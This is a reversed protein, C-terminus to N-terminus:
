LVCKILCDILYSVASILSSVSYKNFIRLILKTSHVLSPLLFDVTFFVFILFFFLAGRCRNWLPHRAWEFLRTGGMCVNQCFDSKRSRSNQCRYEPSKVGM